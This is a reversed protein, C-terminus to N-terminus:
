KPLTSCYAYDPTEKLSPVSAARQLLNACQAASPHTGVSIGRSGAESGKAPAEFSQMPMPAVNAAAAGGPAVQSVSVQAIVPTLTALVCVLTLLPFRGCVAQPM